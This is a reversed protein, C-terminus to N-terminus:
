AYGYGKQKGEIGEAVGKAPQRSRNHFVDRRLNIFTAMLRPGHLALDGCVLRKACEIANGLKAPTNCVVVARYAIAAISQGRFTEKPKPRTFYLAHGEGNLVISRRRCVNRQMGIVLPKGQLPVM